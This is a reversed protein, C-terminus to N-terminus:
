RDRGVLHQVALTLADRADSTKLTDLSALASQAYAHAEKKAAEIGQYRRIFTLIEQLDQDTRVGSLVKNQIKDAEGNPCNNLARILPLTLKGDRIDMGVPKGLTAEDGIFDLLDDTIQFAVGFQTGFRAMHSIEEPSGKGLIAGVECALAMLSATKKGIMTFYATAEANGENETELIEGEIIFQTARTTAKMVELSGIGVLVQLAKALLFDGMLVAARNGWIQHLVEAGRRTDASDLVDDHVLTATQIIEIAVAADIVEDTCTGVAQATLLALAPRFRKGRNAQLHDGMHQVTFVDSTLVETLRREFADIYGQIPATISNVM